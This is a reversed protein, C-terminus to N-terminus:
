VKNNMIVDDIKRLIELLPHDEFVRPVWGMIADWKKTFCDSIGDKNLLRESLESLGDKVTFLMNFNQADQEKAKVIMDDLITNASKINISIEKLDIM